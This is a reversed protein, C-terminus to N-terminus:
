EQIEGRISRLASLAESHLMGMERQVEKIRNKQELRWKSINVVSIRRKGAALLEVREHHIASLAHYRRLFGIAANYDHPAIM